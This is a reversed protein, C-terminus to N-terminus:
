KNRFYPLIWTGEENVFYHEAPMTFTEGVDYRQAFLLYLPGGTLIASPTTADCRRDYM